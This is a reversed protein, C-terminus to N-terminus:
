SRGAVKSITSPAPTAVQVGAGPLLNLTPSVATVHVAVSEFPFAAVGMVKVIVISNSSSLGTGSTVVVNIGTVPPLGNSTAHM